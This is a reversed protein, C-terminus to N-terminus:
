QSFIHYLKMLLTKKFIHITKVQLFKMAAHFDGIEFHLGELREEKTFGNSLELLCNVGREVSLQDGVVGQEGFIKENEMEKKPVFEHLVHFM